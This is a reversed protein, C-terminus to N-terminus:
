DQCLHEAHRLMDGLSRADGLDPATAAPEPAERLARDLKLRVLDRDPVDFHESAAAWRWISLATARRGEAWEVDGSAVICIFANETSKEDRVMTLASALTRRAAGVHGELAELAVLSGLALLEIRPRHLSRASAIAQEILRRAKAVERLELYARGLQCLATPRLAQIRRRECVHLAEELPEIADRGRGMFLLVNGIHCLDSVIQAGDDIERAAALSDRLVGLAAEYRGLGSEVISLNSSFRSVRHWDGLKRALQVAQGLRHSALKYDQTALALAGLLNLCDSVIVKDHSRLALRLAVRGQTMAAHWENSRALLRGAVLGAAAAAKADARGPAFLTIAARLWDVGELPSHDMFHEGVADAAVEIFRPVRYAIAARWAALLNSALFAAARRMAPDAGHHNARWRQLVHSEAIAVFRRIVEDDQEAGPREAAWQRLLPHLSFWGDGEVHVLGKDVLDAIAVLSCDAAQQAIERDFPAPLQALRHLASLQPPSLLRKSYDFCARISAHRSETSGRGLTDLSATIGAVIDHVPVLRVWPAALEIGLPLGDLVHVLRVVDAAERQLDFSPVAASARAAFLRVADFRTLTEADREDPDPLPLGGLALLREASLGIRTRSAVLLQLTPCAELLAELPEALPLHEANDLVMLAPTGSLHRTLAQWADGAGATREVAMADLMRGPVEGTRQVDELPVWWVHGAYHDSLRSLAARALTSKGVGGLGMVTLVRVCEVVLSRRISELELVRGILTSGSVTRRESDLAALAALAIADDDFRGVIKRALLGVTLADDTASLRAHAAGLWQEEAERRLDAIWERGVESLGADMGELLPRAALALIEDHRRDDCARRFQALDSRVTWRVRDGQQEVGTVLAIHSISFLVKRLNSRAVAQSRDPWFLTALEDRPVWGGHCALYALLQYRREPTFVTVVDAGRILTPVGFLRLEETPFTM